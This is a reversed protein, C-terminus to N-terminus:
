LNILAILPRLSSLSLPFTSDYQIGLVHSGTRTLCFSSSPACFSPLRIALCQTFQPWLIWFTDSQGLVFPLNLTSQWGSQSPSSVILLIESCLRLYRSCWSWVNNFNWLFSLLMFLGAKSCRFSGPPYQPLTTAGGGQRDCLSHLFQQLPIFIEGQTLLWYPEISQILASAATWNHLTPCRHNTKWSNKRELWFIWPRGLLPRSTFILWSDRRLVKQALISWRSLDIFSKLHKGFVNFKMDFGHQM